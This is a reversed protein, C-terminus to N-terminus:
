RNKGGVSAPSWRHAMIEDGGAEGNGSTQEGGRRAAGLLQRL